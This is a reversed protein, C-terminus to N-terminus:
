EENKNEDPEENVTEANEEAEEQAAEYDYEPTATSDLRLAQDTSVDINEGDNNLPQGYANEDNGQNKTLYEYPPKPANGAYDTDRNDLTDSAEESETSDEKEEADQEAQQAAAYEVKERVDRYKLEEARRIDDLYPGDVSPDGKVVEHAAEYTDAVYPLGEREVKIVNRSDKVPPNGPVYNMANPNDMVVGDDNTPLEVAEANEKAEEEAEEQTKETNDGDVNDPTDETDPSEHIFTDDSM